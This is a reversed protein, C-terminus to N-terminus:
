SKKPYLDMVLFEEQTALLAHDYQEQMNFWFEYSSEFFHALRVCMIRSLSYHPNHKVVLQNFYEDSCGLVSKLVHMPISDLHESLYLGPHTAMPFTNKGDFKKEFIM